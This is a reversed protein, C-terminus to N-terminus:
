TDTRKYRQNHRFIGGPSASLIESGTDHFRYGFRINHRDSENEAFSDAVAFRGNMWRWLYTKESEPNRGRRSTFEIEGGPYRYISLPSFRIGYTDIVSDTSDLLWEWETGNYRQIGDLGGLYIEDRAAVHLCTRMRKGKPVDISGINGNDIIKINPLDFGSNGPDRGIFSIFESGLGDIDVIDRGMQESIDFREWHEGNWHWSMEKPHTSYGALYVNTSSTGYLVNGQFYQGPSVTDVEWTFEHTTSDIPAPPAPGSPEDSCGSILFLSILVFLFVSRM